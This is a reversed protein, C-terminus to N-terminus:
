EGKVEETRIKMAEGRGLAIRTERVLVLVPGHGSNQLVTIAAGLSLGMASLRNAFERGGGLQRVVARSGVPLRDLPVPEKQTM